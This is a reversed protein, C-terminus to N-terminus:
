PPNYKFESIIKPTPAASPVDQPDPWDQKFLCHTLLGWAFTPLQKYPSSKTLPLSM